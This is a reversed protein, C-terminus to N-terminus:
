IGPRVRRGMPRGAMSGPFGAVSGGRTGPRIGGALCCGHQDGQLVDGDAIVPVRGNVVQLQLDRGAVHQGHDTGVAGALAGKELQENALLERQFPLHCQGIGVPHAHGAQRLDVLGVPLKGDGHLVHHGRAQPVLTAGEPPQAALPSGPHGLRQLHHAQAAVGAAHDARQRTAFELPHAKRLEDQLVGLQDHEVFGEHADIDGGLLHQQVQQGAPM